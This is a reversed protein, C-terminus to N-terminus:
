FRLAALIDEWGNRVGFPWFVCALFIGMLAGGVHASHGIRGVIGTKIDQAAYALVFVFIITALLAPLPLIGMILVEDMPAFMAFLTTVGIVAGSAGVARYHM